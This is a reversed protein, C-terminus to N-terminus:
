KARCQDDWRQLTSVEQFVLLVKNKADAHYYTHGSKSPAWDPNFADALSGGDDMALDPNRWEGKLALRPPQEYPGTVGGFRSPLYTRSRLQAIL